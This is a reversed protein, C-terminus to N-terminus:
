SRGWRYTRALHHQRLEDLIRNILDSNLVKSQDITQEDPNLCQSLFSRNNEFEGIISQRITELIGKIAEVVDEIREAFPQSSLMIKFNHGPGRSIVLAYKGGGKEQGISIELDNPNTFIELATFLSIGPM